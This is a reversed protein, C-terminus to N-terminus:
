QSELWKKYVELIYDFHEKELGQWVGVFLSQKMIYDAVPFNDKYKKFPAHRTINGAFFPRTRIRHEEFFYALSNRDLGEALTIPFGFYSPECSEPIEIPVIGEEGQFIMRLYQFNLNRREVFVDLRRLQERGFAANAEPLKFNWGLHDYTYGRYYKIGDVETTFDTHWDGLRDQWDWRKGWDRMSKMRCELEGNNTTVMGGGGLATIQHAPYFSFTALDGFSGVQKNHYKAGVAECCDEIVPIGLEKACNIIRMMDVPVGMTHAFIVAQVNPLEELVQEVNINGTSLDYDVLVPILGLHIIPSLTAPFGCASTLVMSGKPLGLSSLAVLNASSGSNVCVAYKSGIYNAFEHEFEENEKGSALWNTKLVRNVADIENQGYECQAFPIEM